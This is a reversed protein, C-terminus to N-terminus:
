STAIPRFDGSLMTGFFEEASGPPPGYNNALHLSHIGRDFAANASRASGRSRRAM